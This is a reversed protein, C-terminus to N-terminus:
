SYFKYDEYHGIFRRIDSRSKTEKDTLIKYSKKIWDDDTGRSSYHPINKIRYGPFLEKFIRVFKNKDSGFLIILPNSSNLLSMEKEFEEKYKKVLPYELHSQILVSKPEVVGKIFDTMYAGRFQSYNFLKMLKRDHRGGHFNEWNKSLPASINLGVMIIEPNLLDVDEEIIKLDKLDKPNWIAWSSMKSYRRKIEKFNM